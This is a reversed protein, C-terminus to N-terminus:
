CLKSLSIVDLRCVHRCAIKKFAMAEYAYSASGVVDPVCSWTLVESGFLDLGPSHLDQHTFRFWTCMSACVNSARQISAVHGM